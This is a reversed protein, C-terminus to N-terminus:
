GREPTFIGINYEFIMQNAKLLIDTIEKPVGPLANRQRLEELLADTDFHELSLVGRNSAAISLAEDSVRDLVCRELSGEDMADLVEDEISRDIIAQVLNSNSINDLLSDTLTEPDIVALVDDVSSRDIVLRVLDDNAIEELIEDADVTINIGYRDISVDAMNAGQNTHLVLKYGATMPTLDYATKITVIRYRGRPLFISCTKLGTRNILNCASDRGIAAAIGLAM